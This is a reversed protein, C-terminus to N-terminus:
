NLELFDLLSSPEDKVEAEPLDLSIFPCDSWMSDLGYFDRAEELFIHVFFDQYDLIVWQSEGELGERTRRKAGAEHLAREVHATMARLQRMSSVSMVLFGEVLPLREEVDYAKINLAGKLAAEQAAKEIYAHTIDSLM